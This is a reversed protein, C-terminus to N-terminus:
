GGRLRLVLHVTSDKKINYYKLTREGELQRGAFILRQQEPRIGEKEQIQKKTQDVSDSFDVDLTIVKGPLTRVFITECHLTSFFNFLLAILLTSRLINM